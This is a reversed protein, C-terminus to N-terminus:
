FVNSPSALRRVRSGSNIQSFMPLLSSYMPFMSYTGPLYQSILESSCLGYQPFSFLLVLFLIICYLYIDPILRPPAAYLSLEAKLCQLVEEVRQLTELLKCLTGKLKLM